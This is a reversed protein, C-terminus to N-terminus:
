EPRTARRGAQNTCIPSVTKPSPKVGTDPGAPGVQGAVQCGACRSRRQSLDGRLRNRALTGEAALDDRGEVLLKLERSSRGPAM